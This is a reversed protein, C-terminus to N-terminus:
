TAPTPTPIRRRRLHRGGPHRGARLRRRHDALLRQHRRLRALRRGPLHRLRRRRHEPRRGGVRRRRDAQRLRHRTQWSPKPDYASCGTGAGSWATETWGRAAAAARALSTGGVATVYQSAAPYEVGYGSDGSSATIAVGPHNFYSRTPAPTRLPRRAGGYSNSVFKAGLAVAENVATGLDATNLRPRRSWCSTATRASRRSWTWTSRIEEAWGSDPASLEHRRDPRGQPLLRQGHHLGAPRVPLPLHRPRGRREPRRLRRRDRGDPGSGNGLRCPTRARCTAPGYGSPPSSRSSATTARNVDTRVLSLCAMQGRRTPTACVAKTPASLHSRAKPTLTRTTSTAKAKATTTHTAANAPTAMVGATLTLAAVAAYGARVLRRTLTPPSM